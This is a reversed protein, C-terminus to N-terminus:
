VLLIFDFYGATSVPIVLSAAALKYLCPFVDKYQKVVTSVIEKWPIINNEFNPLSKFM